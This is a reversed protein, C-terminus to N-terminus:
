YALKLLFQVELLVSASMSISVSVSASIYASAIQNINDVFLSLILGGSNLRDKIFRKIM